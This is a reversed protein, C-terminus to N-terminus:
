KGLIVYYLLILIAWQCSLRHEGMHAVDEVEIKRKIKIISKM